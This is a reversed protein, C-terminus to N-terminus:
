INDNGATVSTIAPPIYPCYHFAADGNTIQFEIEPRGTWALKFLQFLRKDRIVIAKQFKELYTTTWEGPATVDWWERLMSKIKPRNMLPSSPDIAQYAWFTEGEEAIIMYVGNKEELRVLRRWM